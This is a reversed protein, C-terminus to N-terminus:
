RARSHYTHHMNCGLIFEIPIDCWIGRHDSELRDYALYGGRWCKFSSPAFIADLPHTSSRKCTPPSYTHTHRTHIIDSLDFQKMWQVVDPYKSNWDGMVIVKENREQCQTIYDKLDIWFQKRPCEMIADQSLGV